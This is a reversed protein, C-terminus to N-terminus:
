GNSINPATQTASYRSVIRLLLFIIATECAYELIVLIDFAQIMAGLTLSALQEQPLPAIYYIAKILLWFLFCSAVLLAAELFDCALGCLKSFIYLLHDKSLGKRKTQIQTM